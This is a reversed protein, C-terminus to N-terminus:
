ESIRNYTYVTLPILYHKRLNSKIEIWITVIYSSDTYCLICHWMILKIIKIWVTCLMPSKMPPTGKIYSIIIHSSKCFNVMIDCSSFDWNHGLTLSESMCQGGVEVEQSYIVLDAKVSQKKGVRYFRTPAKCPRTPESPLVLWFQNPALSSGIAM